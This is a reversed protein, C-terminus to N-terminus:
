QWRGEGQDQAIVHIVHKYWSIAIIYLYIYILIYIYYYIFIYLYYIYIIIYIYICDFRTIMFTSLM